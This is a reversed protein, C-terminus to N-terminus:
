RVSPMTKVAKTGIASTRTATGSGVPRMRAPSLQPAPPLRMSNTRSSRARAAVPQLRHVARAPERPPDIAKRPSKGLGRVFESAGEGLADHPRFLHSALKADHEGSDGDLQDGGRM